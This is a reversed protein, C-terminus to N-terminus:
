NKNQEAILEQKMRKLRNRLQQNESCLELVGENLEKLQDDGDFTYSYKHNFSRYNNLGDLIKYIPDIYYIFLFVLLLFVLGIGVIVAVVGPIISRYFGREFTASNKYLDKYISDNLLLIDAMLKNFMPQLRGFYWTRTDIFTSKRVHSFEQSALMYASYAYMISDTLHSSGYNERLTECSKMFDEQHFEPIKAHEDDSGVVALLALNYDNAFESLKQVENISKINESILDSVYNSMKLYEVFSIISSITLIVAIAMLSLTIKYKMSM